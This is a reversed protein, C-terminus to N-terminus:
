SSLEAPAQPRRLRKAAKACFAHAMISPVFFAAEKPAAMSRSELLLIAATVARSAILNQQKAFSGSWALCTM